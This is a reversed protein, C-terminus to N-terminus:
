TEDMSGDSTPVLGTFITSTNTAAPGIIGDEALSRSLAAAAAIAAAKKKNKSMPINMFVSAAVDSETGTTATEIPAAVAAHKQGRSNGKKGKKTNVVTQFGDADVLPPADEEDEEDGEAIMNLAGSAAMAEQILAEPNEAGDNDDEDSDEEDGKALGQSARLVEERKRQALREILMNVRGYNGTICESWLLCLLDGIEEPSGDECITNFQTELYDELILSVDDRYVKDPSLFLEFLEYQLAEVQEESAPGGWRYFVALELATWQHLIANVGANFADISEKSYKEQGAQYRRDFRIQAATRSRTLM